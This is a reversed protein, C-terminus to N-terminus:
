PNDPNWPTFEPVMQKLGERVEDEDGARASTVLKQYKEDIDRLITHSAHDAIFVKAHSTSQYNEDPAFLEESLKEGPKIGLYEIDIDTGLELGSLRVMDRALDVIRVPEGMDLMFVEGGHGLVASQLVLQVAEPILMFYREMNKDTVTVPGGAAIQRRFTLVVSGRSGLVNGFRVAVYAKHTKLAACRVLLEAARKCGGMISTPKVAKDTSILVFHDVDSAVAADLLNKTGLVNNLVCETPNLEMLSVHKHAAAHFIINPRCEELVKQIRKPFRVDAIMPRIEPGRSGERGGKAMRRAMEQLESMILFISNEGHGVLYLAAPGRRLIQRCLESGISGGAGTVLVRRGRIFDTVAAMDTRIPERRLLDDIKVRRLQSVGVKGSLIDYMGPMTRSSVGAQECLSIVERIKKGSATPIAIIVDEVHKSKCVRPLDSVTGLVRTGLISVGQKEPDDDVFAVLNVSMKDSFLIEQAIMLGANGAGVILVRKRKHTDESKTRHSLTALARESFRSGAVFFVMLLGDLLPLSLPISISPFVDLLRETAVMAFMRTTVVGVAAGIALMEQVGAYRWYKNYLEYRYFVPLKVLLGLATYIILGRCEEPTWVNFSQRLLLAVAPILLFFLIDLLIFYRNRFHNM